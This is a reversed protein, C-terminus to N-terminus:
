GRERRYTTVIAAFATSTDERMREAFGMLYGCAFTARLRQETFLTTFVKYDMGDKQWKIPDIGVVDCFEVLCAVNLYLEHPRPPPM